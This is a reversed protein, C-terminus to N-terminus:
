PGKRTESKVGLSEKIKNGNPLKDIAELVEAIWRM